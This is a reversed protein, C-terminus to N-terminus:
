RRSRSSTASTAWGTTTRASKTPRPPSSATAPTRVGRDRRRVRRQRDAPPHQDADLDRQRDRAVAQHEHPVDGAHHRATADDHLHAVLQRHVDRDHGVREAPHRAGLAGAQRPRVELPGLRLLLPVAHVVRLLVSRSTCGCRRRRLDRDSVGLLACLADLAPLRLDRGLDRDRQLRDAAPAHIGEVVPRLAPGQRLHRDGRRRGRVDARRARVGRVDPSGRRRDLDRRPQRDAPLRPVRGRHRRGGSPAPADTM